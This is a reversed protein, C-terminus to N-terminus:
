GAAVWRGETIYGHDGCTRCLVSPTITLPDFSVVTWRHEPDALHECSPLDFTLASKCTKSPDRLDPHAITVGAWEVDPMGDYQPNLDREPWWGFKEATHGSGLDFM